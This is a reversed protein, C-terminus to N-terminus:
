VMMQRPQWDLIDLRLVSKAWIDGGGCKLVLYDCRLVGHVVWFWGIMVRKSLEDGDFGM